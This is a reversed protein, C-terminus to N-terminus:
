KKKKKDPAPQSAVLKDYAAAKDKDLAEKVKNITENRGIAIYGELTKRDTGNEKARAKSEQENKAAMAYVDTVKKEEEETPKIKEKVAALPPLGYPGAEGGDKKDQAWAVGALAFAALFALVSKREM